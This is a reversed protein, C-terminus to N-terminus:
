VSGGRKKTLDVKEGVKSLVDGPISDRRVVSVFYKSFSEQKELSPRKAADKKPPSYETCEGYYDEYANEAVHESVAGLRSLTPRHRGRVEVSSIPELLDNLDLLTNQLTNVYRHTQRHKSSVSYQLGHDRIIYGIGFGNGVVPGFGFLRLSPNGCNSTSLITHNLTQWPRSEFFSPTPVNNREAICKLAFLHRDVLCFSSNSVSRHLIFLCTGALCCSVM